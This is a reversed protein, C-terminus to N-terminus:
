TDEETSRTTSTPEVRPEVPADHLSAAGSRPLTVTFRAGRDPEDDLSVDGGHARAITRVLFLGLGTGSVAKSLRDDGREFPEFIRRRAQAPVGPGRDAVSIRSAVTHGGKDVRDGEVAVAYPQGNPAYKHANELLNDVVIEIQPADVEAILAEPASVEVRVDPHRERFAAVRGAVLEVLDVSAKSAVLKGRDSKAYALFRDVTEGMRRAERALAEAVEVREDDEIRGEALLESLMRVSTLPTKLEHSVGAVFSTRLESTRRTARMRGYLIWALLLALAIGLAIFAALIRESRATRAALKVPDAHQVEIALGDGIWAVGVPAPALQKTPSPSTSAVAVFGEALGSWKPGSSSLARQLTEPTTVFGVSGGEVLVHAAGTVGFSSFPIARGLTASRSRVADQFGEAAIARAVLPATSSSTPSTTALAREIRALDETPLSLRRVEEGTVAREEPRMVYSRAEIWSVLRPGLSAEGNASLGEIALVPWLWRGTTDRAEECSALLTKEADARSAGSLRRVADECSREHDDRAPEDRPLRLSGDIGVVFPEAFPPSVALAREYADLQAEDDGVALDAPMESLRREAEAALTRCRQALADAQGDVELIAERRLAAEENQLARWGLAGTAAAPVLAATLFLLADRRATM